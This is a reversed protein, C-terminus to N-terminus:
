RVVHACFYSLFPVEGEFLNTDMFVDSLGM